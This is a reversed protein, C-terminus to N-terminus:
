SKVIHEDINRGDVNLKLALVVYILTFHPNNLGEILSHVM